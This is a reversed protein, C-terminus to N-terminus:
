VEENHSLPRLVIRPDNELMRESEENGEKHDTAMLKSTEEHELATPPQYAIESIPGYQGNGCQADIHMALREEKSPYCPCEKRRMAIRIYALFLIIGVLIMISGIITLGLRSATSNDQIAKGDGDMVELQLNDSFDVTGEILIILGAGFTFLSFALLLWQLCRPSRLGNSVTQSLYSGAHPWDSQQEYSVTTPQYVPGSPPM